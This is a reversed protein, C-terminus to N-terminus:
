GADTGFGFEDDDFGELDEDSSIFRRPAPQDTLDILPGLKLRVPGTGSWDIVEAAFLRAVTHDEATMFGLIWNEDRGIAEPDAVLLSSGVGCLAVIQGDQKQEVRKVRYRRVDLGSMAVIELGGSVSDVMLGASVAGRRAADLVLARELASGPGRSQVFSEHQRLAGEVSHGGEEASECIERAVQRLKAIESESPRVM